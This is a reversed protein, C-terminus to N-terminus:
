NAGCNRLYSIKCKVKSVASNSVTRLVALMDSFYYEFPIMFLFTGDGDDLTLCCFLGFQGSKKMVNCTVIPSITNLTFPTSRCTFAFFSHQLLWCVLYLRVTCSLHFCLGWQKYNTAINKPTLSLPSKSGM